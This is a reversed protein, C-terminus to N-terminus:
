VSLVSSLLLSPIFFFFLPLSLSLFYWAKWKPECTRSGEVGQSIHARCSSWQRPPPPIIKHEGWQQVSSLVTLVDSALPFLVHLRGCNVAEARAGWSACVCACVGIWVNVHVLKWVCVEYGDTKVCVCWLSLHQGRSHSFVLWQGSVRVLTLGVGDYASIGFYICIDEMHKHILQKRNVHM